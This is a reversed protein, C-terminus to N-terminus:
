NFRVFVPLKRKNLETEVIMAWKLEGVYILKEYVKLVQRDDLQTIEEMFEDYTLNIQTNQPAQPKALKKNKKKM